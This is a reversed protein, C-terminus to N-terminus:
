TCSMMSQVKLGKDLELHTNHVAAKEVGEPHVGYGGVVEGWIGKGERVGDGGGNNGHGGKMGNLIWSRMRLFFTKGQATIAEKITHKSILLRLAGGESFGAMTPMAYAYILLPTPAGTSREIKSDM